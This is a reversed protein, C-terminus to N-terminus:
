TFEILKNCINDKRMNLLNFIYYGGAYGLKKIEDDSFYKKYLDHFNSYNKKWLVKCASLYIKDNASYKLYDQSIDGTFVVDVDSVIISNYQNFLEPVLYKYYIEKSYHAKTKTKKFLEDFRNNMNLFELAANEFKYITEKLRAINDETINSHLVYFRYFYHNDSNEM